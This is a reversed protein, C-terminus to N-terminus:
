PTTMKIVVNIGSAAFQRAIGLGIGSTSGTIVATRKRDMEDVECTSDTKCQLLLDKASCCIVISEHSAASDASAFHHGPELPIRDGVNVLLTRRDM